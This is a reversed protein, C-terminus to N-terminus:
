ETKELVLKTEFSKRERYIKLTIADGPSMDMMMSLIDDGSKVKEGNAELVVDGVRIGAKVAPGNAKIDSVIIGEPKQLGLYRAIRVDVAQWDFGATLDRSVKGKQKLEAVIKKIKNIPIAFGYGIYTNSQGGTYILTNMGIVDGASNVLPGGSNGGNIAADTEIMDRYFRNELQGLKMGTSSVVGVTVTPKDNIEFLGFPNGFAIAWEGIMVDDSNGMNVSPLRTGDVKLLCVDSTPDTGILKAKMQKGGVLTVTIDTANGAVHDNTVIYGDASIIFGSGLGKVEQKFTRDGFFQKFFPDDFYQSFPDRYQVQQVAIVNIGVVTPSIKFVARTISNQRSVAIDDSTQAPKEQQAPAAPLIQAATHEQAHAPEIGSPRVAYGVGLGILLPIGLIVILRVYPNNM